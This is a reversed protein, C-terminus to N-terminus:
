DRPAGRNIWNVINAIQNPTLQRSALPMRSRGHRESDDPGIMDVLWSDDADGPEVLLQQPRLTSPRNVIEDYAEEATLVLGAQQSAFSHCGGISCRKEFIPLVQGSFTAAPVVVDPLGGSPDVTAEFDACAAVGAAFATAITWGIIRVRVM